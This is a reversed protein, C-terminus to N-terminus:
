WNKMHARQSASAIYYSTLYPYDNPALIGSNDEAYMRWALMLRRQNEVCQFSKGNYRTAALAPLLMLALVALVGSVVLMEILNFASSDAAGPGITSASKMDYDTATEM